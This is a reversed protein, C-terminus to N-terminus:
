LRPFLFFNGYGQLTEGAHGEECDAWATVNRDGHAQPSGAFDRSCPWWDCRFCEFTLFHWSKLQQSFRIEARKHTQATCPLASSWHTFGSVRLERYGYSHIPDCIWINWVLRSDRWYINLVQKMVPGKQLWKAFKQATSWLLFFIILYGPQCHCKKTSHLMGEAGPGPLVKYSHFTFLPQSQHHKEM